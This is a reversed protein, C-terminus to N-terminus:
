NQQCSNPSIKRMRFLTKEPIQISERYAQTCTTQPMSANPRTDIANKYEHM